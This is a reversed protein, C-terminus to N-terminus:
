SATKNDDMSLEPVKPPKILKVKPPKIEDYLNMDAQEKAILRYVDAIEEAHLNIDQNKAFEFSKGSMNENEKQLNDVMDLLEKAWSDIGNKIIKGYGAGKFDDYAVNDSAIWPTKTLMFEMPKIWSRYEDYEGALPAIGIDFNRAIIGGWEEYSVYPQFIKKEDPLPISDYVRQDGCIMVRVNDRMNCIRKLAELVGSDRFSPVHSVSGGWGITIYNRKNKPIDIYYQTEFYNPVHYVPIQDKWYDVLRKSPLTAAHGSRIGWLFQTYTKPVIQVREKKGDQEIEIMSDHWFPYSVNTKEIAHYADDWNLIITRGRVKWYMMQTLMDGVYNREIVIIHSQELAQQAEKTNEQFLQAPIASVGYGAKGLAKGPM